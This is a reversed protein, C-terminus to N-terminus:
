KLKKGQKKLGNIYKNKFHEQLLKKVEQNKSKEVRNSVTQRSIGFHEATERVTANNKLIYDIIKSNEVDKM